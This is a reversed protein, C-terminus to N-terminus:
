KTCNEIFQKASDFLEEYNIKEFSTADVYIVQGGFSVELIKTNLAYNKISEKNEARSHVWHREKDRNFYRESLVDLDGGFMFTLCECNYKNLLNKIEVSDHHLFNSELICIQGVQLFREAIHMMLLFTTKSGKNFVETSESGYGDGMIEKIVDKNFYPIKFRKALKYSFTSKGAAPCGTILIIKNNIQM